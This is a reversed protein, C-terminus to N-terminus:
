PMQQSVAEPDLPEGRVVARPESAADRGEVAVKAFQRRLIHPAADAVAKDGDVGGAPNCAIVCEGGGAQREPIEQGVLGPAQGAVGRERRAEYAPEGDILLKPPLTEAGCQDEIGDGARHTGLGGDEREDDIGFVLCSGAEVLM